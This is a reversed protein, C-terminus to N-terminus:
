SPSLLLRVEEAPIITVIATLVSVIVYSILAPHIFTHTYIKRHWQILPATIM